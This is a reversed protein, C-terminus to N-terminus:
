PSSTDCSKNEAYVTPGMQQGLVWDCFTQEKGPALAWCMISPSGFSIWGM